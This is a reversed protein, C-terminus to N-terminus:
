DLSALYFKTVSDRGHGLMKAVKMRAQKETIGAAIFEEYWEAARLHRLGHFTMPRTSDADKVSDRHYAIFDQLHKM